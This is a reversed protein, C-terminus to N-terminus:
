IYERLAVYIQNIAKELVATEVFCRSSKKGNSDLGDISKTHMYAQLERLCQKVWLEVASKQEAEDLYVFCGNEEKSIRVLSDGPGQWYFLIEGCSKEVCRAAYEQDTIQKTSNVAARFRECLDMYQWETILGEELAQKLDRLRDAQWAPPIEGEQAMAIDTEVQELLVARLGKKQRNVGVFDVGISHM